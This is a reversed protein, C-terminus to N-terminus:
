TVAFQFLNFKVIAKPGLEGIRIRLDLSYLDKVPSRIHYFTSLKAEYFSQTGIDQIIKLKTVKNHPEQKKM